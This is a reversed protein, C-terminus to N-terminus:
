GTTKMSAMWTFIRTRDVIKHDPRNLPTNWGNAIM